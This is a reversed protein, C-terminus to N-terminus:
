ADQHKSIGNRIIKVATNIRIILSASGCLVISRLTCRQHSEIGKLIDDRLIAKEPRPGTRAALARLLHTRGSGDPGHLYLVPEGPSGTYRRLHELVALNAGPVYNDFSARERAALRLPMQDKM